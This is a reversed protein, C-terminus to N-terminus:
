GGGQSQQIVKTVLTKIQDYDLTRIMHVHSPDAHACVLDYIKRDIVKAENLTQFRGENEYVIGERDLVINLSPFRREFKDAIRIMEETADFGQDEAYVACGLVPSDTVLIPVHRLVLDERHVQKAFIYLPEFSRPSRKLYAWSKIYETVHELRYQPRGRDDKIASIDGFLRAATVSKGAGAGGHICIRRIVELREKSEPTCNV